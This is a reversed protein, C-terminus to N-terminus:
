TLRLSDAWNPKDRDRFGRPGIRLSVATEKHLKAIFAAQRRPVAGSLADRRLSELPNALGSLPPASRLAIRDRRSSSVDRSDTAAPSSPESTHPRFLASSFVQQPSLNELVKSLMQPTIQQKAAWGLPRGVISEKLVLAARSQQKSVHQGSTGPRIAYLVEPMSGPCSIRVRAGANILTCMPYVRGPVGRCAEEGCRVGNKYFTVTRTEMDVLVGIADLNGFASGLIWERARGGDLLQGTPGNNRDQLAWM